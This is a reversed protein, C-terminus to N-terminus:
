PLAVPIDRWEFGGDTQSTWRWKQQLVRTEQVSQQAAGYPLLWRLEMTPSYIKTELMSYSVESM